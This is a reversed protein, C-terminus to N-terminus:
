GNGLFAYCGPVRALFQAFDESATMPTSMLSVRDRGFLAKGVAMAEETLAPDNVLPVFVRSYSM